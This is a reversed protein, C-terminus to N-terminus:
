DRRLMRNVYDIDFAEPDFEEEEELWEITSEYEEHDPDSIIELLDQYGWIGGCDEPPCNRKGKLCVPLKINEDFPLIKELEIKHHWSDGFDYEYRIAAKEKKLLDAITFDSEDKLNDDFIGMDDTPMGYYGSEAIFQHLHANYWGMTDQIVYHFSALSMTNLVQVRRWIPPKIGELTIKIQYIKKAKTRTSKEKKTNTKQPM